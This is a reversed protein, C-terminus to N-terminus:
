VLCMREEMIIHSKRKREVSINLATKVVIGIFLHNSITIRAKRKPKSQRSFNVPTSSNTM